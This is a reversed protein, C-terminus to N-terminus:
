RDRRGKPQAQGEGPVYLFYWQAKIASWNWGPHPKEVRPPTEDPPPETPGEWSPDGPLVIPHEPLPATGEPPNPWIVLPPEIPLDPPPEIPGGGVSLSPDYALGVLTAPYPEVTKNKPYVFAHFVVPRPAM